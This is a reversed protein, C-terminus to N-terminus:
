TMPPEGRDERLATRGLDTQLIVAGAMGISGLVEALHQAQGPTLERPGDALLASLRGLDSLILASMTDISALVDAVPRSPM